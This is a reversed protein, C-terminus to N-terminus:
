QAAKGARLSNAITEAAVLGFVGAKSLGGTYGAYPGGELGGTASGAAYLGPFIQGDRKLVRAEGDIAIGGMTYTIGACVPVARFPPKAIPQPKGKLSSRPPSLSEAKGDLVARNFEAVTVSLADAPLNMAAALETLSGAGTVKGGAVEL